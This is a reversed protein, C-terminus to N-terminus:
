VGMGEKLKMNKAKERATKGPRAVGCFQLCNAHTTPRNGLKRRQHPSMFQKLVSDRNAM